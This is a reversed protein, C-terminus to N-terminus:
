ARGEAERLAGEFSALLAQRHDHLHLKLRDPGLTVGPAAKTRRRLYAGVLARALREQLGGLALELVGEVIAPAGAEPVDVPRAAHARFNPFLGFVWENAAVFRRYTSGGARPVLGVVESATFVDHERLSLASEDIVYNVCLSRRLGALKSLLMVTGFVTWARGEKVVLFVDVDDDTANGHACAGSLAVLRVFPLRALVQLARAHRGVLSEAHAERGRRLGVWAEAGRPHLLGETRALRTRLFPARLRRGIAVADLPVDMLRRELEALHLPFQFLSAYVVTKLIARDEATAVAEDQRPTVAVFGASM